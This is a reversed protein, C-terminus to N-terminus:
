QRGPGRSAWDSVATIFITPMAQQGQGGQGQSRLFGPLKTASQESLPPPAMRQPAPLRGTKAVHEMLESFRRGNLAALASSLGQGYLPDFGPSSPDKKSDMARLWHTVEGREWASMRGENSLRMLHSLWLYSALECLGEEEAPAMRPVGRLHLRAHVLEHVLM